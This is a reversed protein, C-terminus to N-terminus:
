EYTTRAIVMLQRRKLRWATFVCIWDFVKVPLHADFQQWLSPWAHTYVWIREVQFGAETLLNGLLLPTWTYFHHHIDKPDFRLQTRWDDIPVCLVFIGGRKLKRHISQCIELPGPVHELAHNSIVVDVTKDPIFSLNEFVELGSKAAEARAAPNIEIGLRKNCKLNLLLAGSGCGFDLVTDTPHIFRAFKRVNIRGRQLGGQNQLAFYVKGPEGIYHTSAQPM